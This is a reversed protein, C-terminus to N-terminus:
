PITESIAPDIFEAEICRFVGRDENDALLIIREIDIFEVREYFPRRAAIGIIAVKKNICRQAIIESPVIISGFQSELSFQHDAKEVLKGRVLVTAGCWLYCNKEAKELSTLTGADRYGCLEIAFVVLVLALVVAITFWVRAM